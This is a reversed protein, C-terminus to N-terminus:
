TIKTWKVNVRVSANILKIEKRRTWQVLYVTTVLCKVIDRRTGLFDRPNQVQNRSYYGWRTHIAPADTLSYCMVGGRAGCLRTVAIRASRVCPWDTLSSVAHQSSETAGCYPASPIWSLLSCVGEFLAAYLVILNCIQESDHIFQMDYPWAHLM